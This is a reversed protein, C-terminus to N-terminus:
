TFNGDRPVRGLALPGGSVSGDQLVSGVLMASSSVSNDRPGDSGFSGCETSHDGLLTSGASPQVGTTAQSTAPTPRQRPYLLHIDHRVNPPRGRKKKAVPEVLPADQRSALSTTVLQHKVPHHSPENKVQRKGGRVAGAALAGLAAAVVAGHARAAGRLDVRADNFAGVSGALSGFSGAAAESSRRRHVEPMMPQSTSAANWRRHMGAADMPSTSAAHSENKINMMTYPNFSIDSSPMPLEGLSAGEQKLKHGMHKNTDLQIPLPSNVPMTQQQHQDHPHVRKKKERAEEEQKQVQSLLMSVLASQKANRALQEQISDLSSSLSMDGSSSSTITLAISAASVSRPDRLSTQNMHLRSAITDGAATSNSNHLPSLGTAAAARPDKWAQTGLSNDKPAEIVGKANIHPVPDSSDM